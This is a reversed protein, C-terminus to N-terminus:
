IKLFNNLIKLGEKASREPHFQVGIINNKQLISCYQTAGYNTQTVIVNEIPKVYYSHLFYMYENDNIGSIIKSNINKININNWGIQPIKVKNDSNKNEFKLVNGKIFNLGLHEGNEFSKNLLLQMGVCIGLLPRSNLVYQNIADVLNYKKLNNIGNEFSGVGPLVLREANLVKKPENTLEAECDLKEFSKFINFINGMDYDIITIKKKM